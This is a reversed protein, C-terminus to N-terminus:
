SLQPLTESLFNKVDEMEQDSSTHGLHPYSKFTYRPLHSKLLASTMLGFSYHVLPDMEGHCQFVPPKQINGGAYPFEKHM